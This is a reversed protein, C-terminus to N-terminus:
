SRSGATGVIEGIHRVGEAHARRALAANVMAPWRPGGYVLGTYAQVLCAGHTLREWVDDPGTVGGVSILALRGGTRRRLLRLVQLSRERLVPGSLGGAGCDAVQRAPTRLGDRSVTTNTAIIGALDLSEALEAVGLVDDDALDPAIKVLLPVSRDPVARALAAQVGTLLPGLVDLAQLDRLGPTNPSSVNVVLYDAYPALRETSFVYDAVAEAPDVAKTKGINVGLVPAVARDRAGDSAQARAALRSAVTEAGANNFGMRNVIARDAPLRFLRPRPNGPQARGTVTGIEVAGFGLAALGDVARADKDFGAALGLPSSFRLGMASTTLVPDPPALVGSALGAIRPSATLGALTHLSVRHATEPDTRLALRDFVADYWRDTDGGPAWGSPRPM